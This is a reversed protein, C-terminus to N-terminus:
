INDSIYNYLYEIKDILYYYFKKLFSIKSNNIEVTLIYDDDVETYDCELKYRKYKKEIYKYEKKTKFVVYIKQKTIRLSERIFSPVHERIEAYNCFVVDIGNPFCKHLERIHLDSGIDETSTGTGKGNAEKDSNLFFVDTFNSNDSPSIKKNTIEGIVLLSGSLKKIENKLDYFSKM